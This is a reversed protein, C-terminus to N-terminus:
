VNRGAIHKKKIQCCHLDIYVLVLLLSIKEWHKYLWGTQFPQKAKPCYTLQSTVPLSTQTVECWNTQRKCLFLVGQSRMGLGSVKCWTQKHQNRSLLLLIKPQSILFKSHGQKSCPKPGPSGQLHRGILGPPVTHSEKPVTHNEKSDSVTFSCRFEKGVGSLLQHYFPLHCFLVDKFTHKVAANM